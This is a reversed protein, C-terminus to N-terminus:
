RLFFQGAKQSKIPRLRDVCRKKKPMQDAFCDEIGYRSLRHHQAHRFHRKENQQTAHRRNTSRHFGPPTAITPLTATKFPSPSQGHLLVTLSSFTGQKPLAFRHVREPYHRGVTINASLPVPRVQLRLFALFPGQICKPVGWRFIEM